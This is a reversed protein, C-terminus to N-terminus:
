WVVVTFWLSDWPYCLRIRFALAPWYLPKLSHRATFDMHVSSVVFCPCFLSCKYHHRFYMYLISCFMDFIQSILWMVPCISLRIHIHWPRRQDMHHFDIGFAQTSSVFVPKINTKLRSWINHLFWTIFVLCFRHNTQSAPMGRSHTHTPIGVKNNHSKNTICVCAQEHLM